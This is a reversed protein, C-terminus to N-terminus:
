LGLPTTAVRDHQAIARENLKGPFAEFSDAPSVGHHQPCCSLVKARLDVDLDTGHPSPVGARADQPQCSGADPM